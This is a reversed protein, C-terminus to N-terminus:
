YKHASCTSGAPAGGPIANSVFHYAGPALGPLVTTGIKGYPTLYAVKVGAPTHYGNTNVIKIDNPFEVPTGSVLCGFHMVLSMGAVDPVKVITASRADAATALSAAALLAFLSNTAIATM